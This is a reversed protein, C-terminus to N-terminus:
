SPFISQKASEKNPRDVSPGRVRRDEPNAQLEKDPKIVVRKALTDVEEVPIGPLGCCATGQSRSHLTTADHSVVRGASSRLYSSFNNGPRPPPVVCRAGRVCMLAHTTELRNSRCLYGYFQYSREAQSLCFM